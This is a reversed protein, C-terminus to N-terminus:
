PVTKPFKDLNPSEVPHCNLCRPSTLDSYIVQWAPTGGSTTKPPPKCSQPEGPGCKFIEERLFAAIMDVDNDNLFGPYLRPMPPPVTALFTKLLAPDALQSQRAIQTVSFGSPEGVHCQECAQGFIQEEATRGPPPPLDLRPLTVM